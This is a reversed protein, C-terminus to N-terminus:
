VPECQRLIQQVCTRLRAPIPGQLCPHYAEYPLPFTGLWAPQWQIRNFQSYIRSEALRYYGRHEPKSGM